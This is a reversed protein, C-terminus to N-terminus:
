KRKKATGKRRQRRPKSKKKSEKQLRKAKRAEYEKDKIAAGGTRTPNKNNSSGLALYSLPMSDTASNCIGNRRYLDM